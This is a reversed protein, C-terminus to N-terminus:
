KVAELKTLRYSFAGLLDGRQGGHCEVCQTVSRIAGVMRADKDTGRAFLDDGKRVARLGEAEFADVERTPADKLKDMRPLLESVYVAPKDHKLLGILDVRTVAWRDIVEPSRGFRHPRFGAVQTRSKVYGWGNPNVFDLVVGSHMKGFGAVRDAPTEDGLSVLDPVYEDAQPISPVFEPAFHDPNAKMGLMRVAGFGMARAFQYTRDQHIAWLSSRRSGPSGRDIEYEMESWAAGVTPRDGDSSRVEPVRDAISEFPNDERWETHRRDQAIAGWLPVLWVGLAILVSAVHYIAPGRRPIYVVALALFLLIAQQLLPTSWAGFVCLVPLGSFLVCGPVAWGPRRFKWVAVNVWLLMTVAFVAAIAFAEQM